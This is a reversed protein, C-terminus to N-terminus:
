CKEFNFKVTEVQFLDDEINLKEVEVWQQTGLTTGCPVTDTAFAFPHSLTQSSRLNFTSVWKDECILKEPKPDKKCKTRNVKSNVRNKGGKWSTLLITGNCKTLLTFSIQQDEITGKVSRVNSKITWIQKSSTCSLRLESNVRIM